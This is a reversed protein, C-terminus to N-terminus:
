IIASPQGGTHWFLVVSASDFEGRRARHILGALAKATYWHDTVIAEHRAALQQAARSGDSPVGYGAGVFTDDVECRAAGGLAGTPLGLASEVGAVLRVVTARISAAPDDASIGIVRTGPSYLACGAILGAQTGGSSTAHVIIDPTIGQGVLEGVGRAIAMAGLPTSAGLPIILPQRGSASVASAVQDMTPAREERSNVFTVQAGYMSVLLANGTPRDPQTGNAVIHCALGLQAAVAATARCHNSQVGGCTILTDAGKALADAAVLTLKRVKNGGFGFPITDDRKALLSAKMGLVDRLRQLEDV